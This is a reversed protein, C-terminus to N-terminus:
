KGLLKTKGMVKWVIYSAVLLEMEYSYVVDTEKVMRKNESIVRKSAEKMYKNHQYIVYDKFSMRDIEKLDYELSNAVEERLVELHCQKIFKHLKQEYHIHRRNKPHPVGRIDNHVRCFYDAIYHLIVGLERSFAMTELEKKTDLGEIMLEVRESIEDLSQNLYHPYKKFMSSFDPEIAGYLFSVRKLKVGYTLSLHEQVNRAYLAHTASM